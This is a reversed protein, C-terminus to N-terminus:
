CCLFWITSLPFSTPLTLHNWAADRAEQQKRHLVCLERPLRVHRRRRKTLPDVPCRWLQLCDLIWRSVRPSLLVINFLSWDPRFPSPWNIPQPHSKQPQNNPWPFSFIFNLADGRYSDLCFEECHPYWSAWFSWRRFHAVTVSIELIEM